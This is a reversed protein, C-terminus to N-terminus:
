HEGCDGAHEHAQCVADSSVLDGKLYAQVMEEVDGSVGVVVQINHSSFLDQARKGMGGAIITNVDNESLYQPLFGPKHGPNLLFVSEVVVGEKVDFLQFGECHGFHGSVKANETAVAIKM